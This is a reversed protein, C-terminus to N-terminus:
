IDIGRHALLHEILALLARAGLAIGLREALERVREKHSPAHEKDVM